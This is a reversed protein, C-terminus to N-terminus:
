TDQDHIFDSNVYNGFLAELWEMEGLGSDGFEGVALENHMALPRSTTHSTGAGGEPQDNPLAHICASGQTPHMGFGTGIRVGEEFDFDTMVLSALGDFSLVQTPLYPETIDPGYLPPMQSTPKGGVGSCVNMDPQGVFEHEGVSPDSPIQSPHVMSSGEGSDIGTPRARSDLVGPARSSHKYVSLGTGVANDDKLLRSAMHRLRSVVRILKGSVWTKTCYSELLRVAHVTAGGYAAKFTNEKLILGLSTTTAGILYHIFPFTFIAKEEPFQSVEEIIGNAIQMCSMENEFLDLPTGDPSVSACLLPRRILLRVSLWRTRMLSQQKILWWPTEVLQTARSGYHPHAFDQHIDKQARFLLRELHELLPYNPAPDLSKAGYLGEWVKGLVQSYTIMARFYPFSTTHPGNAESPQPIDLDTNPRNLSASLQDDDVPRPLPTDVNVDQILSPHGTEIALRRDLIYLSWWMRRFMESHYPSMNHIVRSRHLGLYHAHSIALALLKEAKGFNDLRFLYIVVLALTQLLLLPDPCSEFSDLLDGILGYAAGYLSWGASHRGERNELRPSETCLGIAICVLLQALAIESIKSKHIDPESSLALSNWMVNHNNRLTPLHLFPYLIHIETCFIDLSKDWQPRKPQIGYTLFINRYNNYEPSKEGREHHPPPTLIPTSIQSHPANTAPGGHGQTTELREEVEELVHRISTEGSFSNVEDRVLAKNKSSTFSGNVITTSGPRNVPGTEADISDRGNFAPCVANILSQLQREVRDLRTLVDKGRVIVKLCKMGLMHEVDYILPMRPADDGALCALNVLCTGMVSESAVHCVTPNPDTSRFFGFIAQPMIDYWAQSVYRGRRQRKSDPLANPQDAGHFPSGDGSRKSGRSNRTVTEPRVM